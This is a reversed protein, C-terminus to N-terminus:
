MDVLQQATMDVHTISEVKKLKQLREKKIIAKKRAKIAKRLQKREKGFPISISNVDVGFYWVLFHLTSESPDTHKGIYLHLGEDSYPMMGQFWHWDLSDDKLISLLEKIEM